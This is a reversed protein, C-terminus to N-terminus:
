TGAMLLKTNQSSDLVRLWMDLSQGGREEEQITTAKWRISKNSQALREKMKLEKFEIQRCLKM